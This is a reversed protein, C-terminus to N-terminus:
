VSRKYNMMSLTRELHVPHVIMAFEKMIKDYIEDSLVGNKNLGKLETTLYSIRRYLIDIYENPHIGMLEQIDIYNKDKNEM